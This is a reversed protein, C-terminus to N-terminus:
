GKSSGLDAAWPYYLYSASSPVGTVDKSMVVTAPTAVAPIWVANEVWKKELEISIQAREANDSAAYGDDVLTDFEPDNFGAFNRTSDSRGNKYFGLPDSKSIYYIDPWLDATTRLAEDNYFDGYQVEPVSLIEAKLGIQKAADLLANAIVNHVSSGNSAIVIPDTPAGAEEVLKKAAEIDEDNPKAPAGQLDDYAAQFSDIEYGWAGPGVPTKWPNALGGFAAQAIGARDIALSLAQRIKVDKMVGKESPVALWTTTSPGQYVANDASDLFPVAAAPNEFYAGDVEQATLSNVTAAEGAWKFVISATKAVRDKQWYSDNRKLVVSDGPKWSDVEYPGSCASASTPSGFNDGESEIVRPNWVIGADGALAQIFIADRQTTTVTIQDDGTQELKIIKTYEDSEAAGEEAHRELSWLVDETSVQSGDHFTADQRITLVLHTDDIWESGSAIGNGLSLDPQLQMLRDCLNALLIDDQTKADIDSDLTTPEAPLMWTATELEGAAAPTSAEFPVRSVDASQKETGGEASCGTAALAIAAAAGVAFIRWSQKTYKM